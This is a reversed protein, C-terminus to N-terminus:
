PLINGTDICGTGLHRGREPLALDPLAHSGHGVFAPFPNLGIHDYVGHDAGVRRGDTIEPPNIDKQKEGIGCVWGHPAM